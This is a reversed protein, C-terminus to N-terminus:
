LVKALGQLVKAVGDENVSPIVLDAIDLANKKADSPVFLMSGDIVAKVIVDNATPDASDGIMIVNTNPVGLSNQLKKLGSGKNVIANSVMVRVSGVLQKLDGRSSHCPALITMLTEDVPYQLLSFFDSQVSQKTNIAELLKPAVARLIPVEVRVIDKIAFLASFVESKSVQVINKRLTEYWDLPRHHGLMHKADIDDMVLFTNGLTHKIDLFPIHSNTMANALATLFASPLVAKEDVTLTNNEYTIRGGVFIGTVLCDLASEIPQFNTFDRGTNFVIHFRPDRLVNRLTHITLTTLAHSGKNRDVITRDCDLSILLPKSGDVKHKEILESLSHHLLNM